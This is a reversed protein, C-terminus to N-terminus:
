RFWEAPLYGRQNELMDDFLKQGDAMSVAAMQPENMFTIFGLKRDRKMAATLTNEQNYVHHAVLPLIGAPLPGAFVPEIRDRGFLANTEVM